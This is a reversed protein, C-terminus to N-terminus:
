ESSVEVFADVAAELSLPVEGEEGVGEVESGAGTKSEAAERREGKQPRECDSGGREWLEAV